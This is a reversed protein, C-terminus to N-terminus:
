ISFDIVYRGEIGKKMNNIGENIDTLKIINKPLSNLVKDGTGLYNLIKPIDREPIVRGGETGTISKGFHLPLTNISVNDNFKPVGVCILQGKKNIMSYLTQIIQAKGTTDIAIDYNNVEDQFNELQLKEDKLIICKNAGLNKALTLKSLDKDIVTINNVFTKRLLFLLNIGVGGMGSIIVNDGLSIRTEYSLIGMATSLSCGLLPALYKDIAKNVKTLRTEAVVTHQSFTTVPGANLHKSNWKLYDINTQLGPNPRWHLIVHDGIAVRSVGPGLKTVIGFGEHGLLHPLYKDPGKTAEIENIQAGCIGSSILQVQVHGIGLDDPIEIYDVVLPTKNQVLIAALSKVM